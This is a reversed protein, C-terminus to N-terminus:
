RDILQRRFIALIGELSAFLHKSFLLINITLKLVVTASPFMTIHTDKPAGLLDLAWPLSINLSRIDASTVVLGKPVELVLTSTLM